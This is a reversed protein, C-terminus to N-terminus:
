VSGPFTCAKFHFLAQSTHSLPQADVACAAWARRHGCMSEDSLTRYLSRRPSLNGYFSFKRRGEEAFPSDPLMLKVFDEKSLVHQTESGAEGAATPHQAAPSMLEM